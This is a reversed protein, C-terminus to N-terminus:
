QLIIAMHHIFAGQPFTKPRKYCANKYCIYLYVLVNREVCGGVHEWEALCCALFFIIFVLRM